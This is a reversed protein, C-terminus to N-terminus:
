SGEDKSRSIQKAPPPVDDEIGLLANSWYQPMPLNDELEWACGRIKFKWYNKKGNMKSVYVGLRKGDLDHGGFAFQCLKRKEEFEMKGFGTSNRCITRIHARAIEADRKIIKEDPVADLQLRITEIEEKLSREALKHEEMRRAVDEAEFHGSEVMGLLRNKARATAALQKEFEKQRSRLGKLDEKSPLFDKIMKEFKAQNGYTQYLHVLVADELKDAPVSKLCDCADTKKHYYFRGHSYKAGYLTQGCAGCFVMRGLAYNNKTQGHHLTKNAYTKAHIAKITEPHLLEPIKLTVTEKINLRESEFTIPWENGSVKRLIKYLHAPKFGLKRAVDVFKDGRLYCEAATEIKNKREEDVKWEGTKKDFTRGYPLKGATPYGRRAKEIKNLLSKELRQSAEFEGAEVSIGLVFNQQPSYYDHESTGNFFRIGNKRMIDIGEKSRRNDRSWRSTDCVIVADFIGKSSDALLMDLLKREQDPTAHEQGSYRWCYDPIVGGLYEVMQIIMKRQTRLSEGKKEQAETSVRILPAFRLKKNNQM